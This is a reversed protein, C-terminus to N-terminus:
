LQSLLELWQVEGAQIMDSISCVRKSTLVSPGLDGEGETRRVTVYLADSRANVDLPLSMVM